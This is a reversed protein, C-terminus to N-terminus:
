YWKNGAEGKKEGKPNLSEMRQGPIAEATLAAEFVGSCARRGLEQFSDYGELEGNCAMWERALPSSGDGLDSWRTLVLTQKFSMGRPDEKDETLRLECLYETPCEPCRRMPRCTGCQGVIGQPDVHKPKAISGVGQKLDAKFEEALRQGAWVNRPKEIHSLACKCVDMLLGDRWHACMSFYPTYDGRSYLFMRKGADTLAPAAFASSIVRLLLHGNTHIFYRTSHTWESDPTKWRRALSDLSVGYQPGFRAARTALQAFTFPLTRTSTLRTRAPPFATNTFNPCRFLPNVITPPMLKEAGPKLRLHYRACQFCLLHRPLAVDMPILFHIKYTHNEPLDLARWPGPGLLYRLPKSSFALNAADTPNLYTAIHRWLEPSLSAIQPEGPKRTDISHSQSQLSDTSGKHTLSHLMSTIDKREGTQSDIVNTGAM